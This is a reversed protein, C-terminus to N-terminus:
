LETFVVLVVHRSWAAGKPQFYGMAVAAAVKKATVLDGELQPSWGGLSYPLLVWGQFSRNTTQVFHELLGELAESPSQEGAQIRATAAALTKGDQPGQIRLIPPLDRTARQSDITDFLADIQATYDRDTLEDYTAVVARRMAHSPDSLSAYAVIGAEPDFLRARSHPSMLEAALHRELSWHSPGATMFFSGWSIHAEVRRGALMGLAIQDALHEQGPGRAAALFHPLLDAIVESQANSARIPPVGATRRLANVATALALEDHEDAGIPLELRPAQYHSPAADHPSVALWLVAHGLQRERPTASLQVVTMEDNPSVPCRLAFQPAVAPEDAIPWCPLAELDGRTAYGTIIDFDFRVRGRLEVHSGVRTLAVPELEVEPVGFAISVVGEDEGRGIWLGVSAGPPVGEVIHDLFSRDERSRLARGPLQKLPLRRTVTAPSVVTTGCRAVIFRRLDSAPEDGHALSFHGLQEAVCQMGRAVKRGEGAEALVMALARASPDDGTYVEEDAVEAGPAGLTWEDIPAVPNGLLEPTEPTRRAVIQELEDETPFPEDIELAPDSNTLEVRDGPSHTTGKASCHACATSLLTVAAARALIRLSHSM